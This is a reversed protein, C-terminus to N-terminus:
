RYPLLNRQIRRRQVHAFEPCRTEWALDITDWLVPDHIGLAVTDQWVDKVHSVHSMLTQINSSSASCLHSSLQHLTHRSALAARVARTDPATPLQIAHPPPIQPSAGPPTHVHLHLPRLLRRTLSHLPSPSPPNTNPRRPAAPIGPITSASLLPSSPPCPLHISPRDLVQLILHCPSSLRSYSPQVPVSITPPLRSRPLSTPLRTQSLSANGALM